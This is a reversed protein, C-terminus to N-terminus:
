ARAAERWESYAAADMRVSIEAGDRVVYLPVSWVRWRRDDKAQSKVLAAIKRKRARKKREHRRGYPLHYVRWAERCRHCRCRHNNYGGATGHWGERM